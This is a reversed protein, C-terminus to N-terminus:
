INFSFTACAAKEGNVMCPSDCKVHIRTIEVWKSSLGKGFLGLKLGNGTWRAANRRLVLPLPPVNGRLHTILQGKQARVAHARMPHQTSQADRGPRQPMSFNACRRHKAIELAGQNLKSITNARRPPCSHKLTQPCYPMLAHPRLV